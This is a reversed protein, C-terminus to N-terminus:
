TRFRSPEFHTTSNANSNVNKTVDLNFNNINSHPNKGDFYIIKDDNSLANKDVYNSKYSSVFSSKDLNKDVGNSKYSSIFAAKYDNFFSILTHTKLSFQKFFSDLLFDKEFTQLFIHLRHLSFRLDSSFDNTFLFGPFNHFLL